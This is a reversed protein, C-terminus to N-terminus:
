GGGRLKGSGGGWEVSYRGGDAVADDAARKSLFTEWIDWRELFSYGRRCVRGLLSGTRRTEVRRTGRGRGGGYGTAWSPVSGVEVIHM